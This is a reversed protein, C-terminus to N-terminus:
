GNVETIIRLVISFEWASFSLIPFNEVFTFILILLCVRATGDRVPQTFSRSITKAEHVM